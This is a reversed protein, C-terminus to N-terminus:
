YGYIEIERWAVWSSSATTYIRVYRGVADINRVIPERSTTNGSITAVPAPFSLWTDSVYIQHTMPGSAPWQEPTLVCRKMQFGSAEQKQLYAVVATLWVM